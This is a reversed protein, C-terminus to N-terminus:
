VFNDAYSRKILRRQKPQVVEYTYHQKKAFNEAEELSKFYIKVENMMDKSSTRAMLAERFRTEDARVFELLWKEDGDGSQMASKIPQYIRALM